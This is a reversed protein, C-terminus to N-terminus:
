VRIGTHLTCHVTDLLVLEMCIFFCTSTEVEEYRHKDVGPLVLMVQSTVITPPSREASIDLTVLVNLSTLISRTPPTPFGAVM